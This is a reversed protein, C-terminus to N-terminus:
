QSLTECILYSKRQSDNISNRWIVSMFRPKDVFRRQSNPGYPEYNRFHFLTQLDSFLIPNMIGRM